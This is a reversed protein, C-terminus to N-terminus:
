TAQGGGSPADHLRGGGGDAGHEDTVPPLRLAFCAGGLDGDTVTVTTGHREAVERVTALGIGTGDIGRDVDRQVRYGDSFIAERENEPVGPGDDEVRLEVMGDVDVASIRVTAGGGSDGFKVANGVLNLLAQRLLPEHGQVRPLDQATITAGAREIQEELTDIVWAVIDQLDIESTTPRTERRRAETLLANLLELAQESNHRIREVYTAVEGVVAEDEALLEAFGTVAVLPTRLDHALARAFRQLRENAAEVEERARRDATVDQIIGTVAAVTGDDNLVPDARAYVTREEGDRRVIVYEEEFPYGEDATERLARRVEDRDDERIAGVHADLDGAFEIPDLDHIRYLQESWQVEDEDPVWRWLGVDGLSQLDRLREQVDALTAQTELRESEDHLVIVTMDGLSAAEVSVHVTTGDQRQLSARGGSVVDGTAARDLVGAGDAAVLVDGVARGTVEETALGLLRTAARNCSDVNGADDVFVVAARVADLLFAM